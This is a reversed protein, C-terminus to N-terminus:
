GGLTVACRFGRSGSSGINAHGYDRKAVRLHITEFDWSGGRVVKYSGSMPGQPNATPSVGYFDKQYWDNVWEWLNGAMDMVGYPSAGSPYSGVESVRITLGPGEVCFRDLTDGGRFNALACTPPENGWPYMRTDNPGRAAKEWEAETPLRKGVWTCYARAEYWTVESIPHNPKGGVPIYEWPDRQCVGADVCAKYQVNTVEYTDIYYADMYVTHLPQEDSFCYEASNASDCGMQFTGAPILVMGTPVIPPVGRLVLPLNIASGAQSAVGPSILLLALLIVVSVSRLRNM